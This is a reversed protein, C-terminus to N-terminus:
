FFVNAAQLTLDVEKDLYDSCSSLGMSIMAAAAISFIKLKMIHTIQFKPDIAPSVPSSDASAELGM